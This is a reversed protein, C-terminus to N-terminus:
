GDPDDAKRAKVFNVVVLGTLMALIAFKVAVFRGVPTGFLASVSYGLLRVAQYVGTALFVAIVVPLHRRFRRAGAKIEDAADPRARLTPLVVFNHWSAGGIWLAFSGVHGARVVWELPRGSTETWVFGALSGLVVAFFLWRVYTATQRREDGSYRDLGVWLFTSLAVGFGVAVEGPDLPRAMVGTAVSGVGGLLLALVAFAEVRRWQESVARTTDDHEFDSADFLVLRWYLGGGLSGLAVVLLWWFGRAVFAEGWRSLWIGAASGVLLLAFVVRPQLGKPSVDLGFPGTEKDDSGRIAM